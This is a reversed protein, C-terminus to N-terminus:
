IFWCLFNNKFLCKFHILNIKHIKENQPQKENPSRRILVVDFYEYDKKEIRELEFLM